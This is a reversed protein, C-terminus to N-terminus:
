LCVIFTMFQHEAYAWIANFCIHTKGGLIVLGVGSFILPVLIKNFIILYTLAELHEILNHLRLKKKSPDTCASRAYSRNINSINSM